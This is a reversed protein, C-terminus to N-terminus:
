SIPNHPKTARIMDLPFDNGWGAREFKGRM